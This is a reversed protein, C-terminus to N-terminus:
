SILLSEKLQNWDKVSLRQQALGCVADFAEKPAFQKMGSLMGAREEYSLAPLMYHLFIMMVQPPISARIKTSVEMLEEDTLNKWLENQAEVEERELHKFYDATFSNLGKSIQFWIRRKGDTSLSVNKLTSVVAELEAFRKDLTVHENELKLATEPCFQDYLHQVHMDEDHAHSELIQEIRYFEELFENVKEEDNFDMAGAKLCLGSLAFRLGKHVPGFLDFRNYM